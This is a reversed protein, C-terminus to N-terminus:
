RVAAGDSGLRTDLSDGLSKSLSRLAARPMRAVIEVDRDHQSLTAKGYEAEFGPSAQLADLIAGIQLGAKEAAAAEAYRISFTGELRDDHLVAHGHLIGALAPNTSEAISSVDGVMWFSSALDLGRVLEGVEGGPGVGAKLREALWAADGAARQTVVVTHDDLWAFWRDGGKRHLVTLPTGDKGGPAPKREITRDEAKALCAELEDRSWRGSVIVDTHDSPAGDEGLDGALVVWDVLAPLDLTCSGVLSQVASVMEPARMIRRIVGALDRDSRLEAIVLGAAFHEDAPLHPVAAAMAARLPAADIPPPAPEVPVAPELKDRDPVM